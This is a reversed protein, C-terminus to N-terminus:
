CLASEVPVPLFSFPRQPWFVHIGHAICKKTADTSTRSCKHIVRPYKRFTIPTCAPGQNLNQADSCVVECKLKKSKYTLKPEFEYEFTFIGGGQQVCGCKSAGSAPICTSTSYTASCVSSKSSNDIEVLYFQVTDVTVSCQAATVKVSDITCRIPTPQGENYM